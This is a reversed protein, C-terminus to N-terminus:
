KLFFWAAAAAVVLVVLIIPLVSKKEEKQRSKVPAVYDDDDDDDKYRPQEAREEVQHKRKELDQILRLEADLPDGCSSCFIRSDDNSHGCTPCRKAM